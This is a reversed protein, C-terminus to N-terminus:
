AGRSRFRPIAYTGINRISKLGAWQPITGMQYIFMIADPWDM